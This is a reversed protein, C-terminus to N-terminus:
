CFKNKVKQQTNYHTRYNNLQAIQFKQELLKSTLKLVTNHLDLHLIRVKRNIIIMHLGVNEKKQFNM